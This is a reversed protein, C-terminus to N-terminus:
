RGYDMYKDSDVEWREAWGTRECNWFWLEKGNRHNEPRKEEKPPLKITVIKQDLVTEDEGKEPLLSIIMPTSVAISFILAGIILAKLTTKPNEKRLTSRGSWDPMSRATGVDDWGPM